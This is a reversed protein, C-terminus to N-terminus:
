AKKIFFITQDPANAIMASDGEPTPAIMRAGGIESPMTAPALRGAQIDVSVAKGNRLQDLDILTFKESNLGRVYAYRRTFVIQDPEEVVPTQAVVSNTASDIMLVNNEFQNVALAFRGNPDFALDVIGRKVQITGVVDNSDSDIATLFDDNLGAVYILRSTSGYAMAVPTKGVKIEAIKTMSQTDVISVNNDASNTFVARRGDEGFAIKHLGKGIAVRRAITHNSTDIAVAEAAGDLVVWLYRGNPQLAIQGPLSQEGTPLTAIVRRTTTDIIAVMGVDPITVYLFKNDKSLVWDAGRGPLVILSELKTANFSVQPNIVSITKDHNLTLLLFSNLDIDARAGLSGGALRRIKDACQAETAVPQSGRAVIWGKPRYGPLPEGSVANTVRIHAVADSGVTMEGTASGSISTLWFELALGGQEIRQPPALVESPREAALGATAYAAALLM